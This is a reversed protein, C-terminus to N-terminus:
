HLTLTYYPRASHYRLFGWDDVKGSKTLLSSGDAPMPDIHWTGTRATRSFTIRIDVYRWVGSPQRLQMVEPLFLWQQNGGNTSFDSAQWKHTVPNLWAVTAGWGYDQKGKRLAPNWVVVQDSAPVLIENSRQMYWARFQITQGRKASTPVGVSSAYLDGVQHMYPGSAQASQPAAIGFLGAALMVAIAGLARAKGM